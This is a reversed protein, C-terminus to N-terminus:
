IYNAGPIKLINYTKEIQIINADKNDRANQLTFRFTKDLDLRPIKQDIKMVIDMSEAEPLANKCGEMVIDDGKDCNLVKKIILPDKWDMFRFTLETNLYNYKKNKITLHIEKLYAEKDPSTRDRPVIDKVQIVIKTIEISMFENEAEWGILKPEPATYASPKEEAKVEEPVDIVKVEEPEQFVPEEPEEFVTDPIDEVPADGYDPKVFFVDEDEQDDCISNANRDLCCADGDAMYPRECSPKPAEQTACGILFLTLIILAVVGRKM